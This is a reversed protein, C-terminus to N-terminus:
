DAVYVQPSPPAPKWVSSNTQWGSLLKAAIAPSACDLWATLRKRDSMGPIPVLIPQKELSHRRRIITRHMGKNTTMCYESGAMVYFRQGVQFGRAWLGRAKLEFTPANAPITVSGIVIHLDPARPAGGAPGNTAQSKDFVRCGADRFLRQADFSLRDHDAREADGMEPVIPRVKNALPARADFALRIWEAEFFRISKMGVRHDNFCAVYIEDCQYTDVQDGLRREGNGSRGIYYGSGNRGVYVLPRSNLQGFEILEAVKHGPGAFVTVSTALSDVRRIGDIDSAPRYITTNRGPVASSEVMRGLHRKM